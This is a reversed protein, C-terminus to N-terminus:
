PSCLRPKIGPLPLIKRHEAADVGAGPDMWGKICFTSPARESSSFRDARSAPWKREDLASTLLLPAIGGTRCTKM